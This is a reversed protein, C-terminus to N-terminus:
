LALPLLPLLHRTRKMTGAFIVTAPRSTFCAVSSSLASEPRRECPSRCWLRCAHGRATRSGQREGPRAIGARTSDTRFPAQVAHFGSQRIPLAFAEALRRALIRRRRGSVPRFTKGVIFSVM